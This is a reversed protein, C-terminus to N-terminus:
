KSSHRPRWSDGMVRVYNYLLLLGCFRMRMSGTEVNSQVLKKFVGWGGANIVGMIITAFFTQSVHLYKIRLLWAEGFAPSKSHLGWGQAELGLNQHISLTWIHLGEPPSNILLDM